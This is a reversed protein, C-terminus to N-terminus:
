VGLAADVALRRLVVEARQREAAIRGLARLLEFAEPWRLVAEARQAAGDDTPEMFCDIGPQLGFTPECRGTVLVRGAALVAFAEAPPPAGGPVPLVVVSAAAIADLDARERVTVPLERSTLREAIPGTLEPPGAVLAAAAAPPALECARTGAPWPLRRWVGHEGTISATGADWAFAGDRAPRGRVLEIALGDGPEAPGALALDAPDGLLTVRPESM